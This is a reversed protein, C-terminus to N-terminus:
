KSFGVKVVEFLESAMQKHEEMSPHGTCGSPYRKAFEYVQINNDGAHHRESKLDHLWSTLMENKHDELIPSNLLLFDANHYVSRLQDLFRRYQEKFEAEIPAPRPDPKDGDSFDNTGLAIIVMDAQYKSHDWKTSTDLPDSYISAYRDPMIPGPTSWNRHMGMGSVATLMYQANLERAVQVAYNNWATHQDMWEAQGCVVEREDAGMGCTISDGIFEIRKNPLEPAQHFEDAHFASIANRGNAGETAKILIVDHIGSSLEDVVVYRKVGQVTRFRHSEQGDVIVTFWNYSMGDRFEDSLDVELSSGSFRVFFSVGSAGFSVSENALVEHRGMIQIKPDTPTISMKSKSSPSLLTLLILVIIM